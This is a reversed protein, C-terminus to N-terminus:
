KFMQTLRDGAGGKGSGKKGLKGGQVYELAMGSAVSALSGPSGSRERSGRKLDREEVMAYGQQQQQQQQPYMQQTPYNQQAYPPAQQQENFSEYPYEYKPASRDNEIPMGRSNNTPAPYWHAVGDNPQGPPPPGWYGQPTSQQSNNSSQDHPRSEYTKALKKVAYIGGGTMMAKCILGM